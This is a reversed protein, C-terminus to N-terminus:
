ETREREEDIVEHNVMLGVRLEGYADQSTIANIQTGLRDRMQKALTKIIPVTLKSLEREIAEQIDQEYSKAIRQALEHVPINNLSIAM